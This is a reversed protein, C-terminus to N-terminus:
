ARVSTARSPPTSPVRAPLCRQMTSARGQRLLALLLGLGAALLATASPEPVAIVPAFTPFAGSTGGWSILMSGGSDRESALRFSGPGYATADTDLFFWVSQEGQGILHSPPLYQGFFWMPGGSAPQMVFAPVVGDGLDTRWNALFDGPAWGQLEFSAVSLFSTVDVAIRWYFDVTGDVSRVVRSQVEGTVPGTILPNELGENRFWGEYSFPTTRDELVVGQLQPQATADTGATATVLQGGPTLDQASAAGICAFAAFAALRANPSSM